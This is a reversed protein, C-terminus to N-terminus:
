KCKSHSRAIQCDHMEELDEPDSVDFESNSPDMLDDSDSESLATIAHQAARRVPRTMAASSFHKQM